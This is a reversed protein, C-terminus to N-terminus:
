SPHQVVAIGRSKAATDYIKNRLDRDYTLYKNENLFYAKREYCEITVELFHEIDQYVCFSDADRYILHMSNDIDLSRICYYDGTFSELFPIMDPKWEDLEPYNEYTNNFEQIRAAIMHVPILTYRPIIELSYGQDNKKYGSICSYFSVLSRPVSRNPISSHIDNITLNTELTDIFGPRQKDILKLMKDIKLKINDRNTQMDNNRIINPRWNESYSLLHEFAPQSVFTM